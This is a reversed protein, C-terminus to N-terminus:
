SSARKYFPTKAVRAAVLRGRCDVLIETGIASMVAPVYGLGISKGVTPGPSGSTCVGVHASSADLLPYGHRAIELDERARVAVAAPGDTRDSVLGDVGLAENAPGDLGHDVQHAELRAGLM